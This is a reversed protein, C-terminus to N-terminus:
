LWRKGGATAEVRKLLAKIEQARNKPCVLTADATHVVILDDAGVVALLHEGQSFVLNNSGQEVLARGRVVNGRADQTSHKAVAPWAGVDDWDFSALMMVVNDSKELLAYDVSIKKLAPYVRALVPGLARKAALARRVPAFAAQLEPALKGLASHVVPVSWIFMGANWFYEGSALYDRAVDANPKEVFRRVYYFPKRGFNRWKTGRQVYGFATSPEDPKIGITVM